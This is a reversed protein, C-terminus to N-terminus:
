VDWGRFTAGSDLRPRMEQDEDDGVPVLVRNNVFTGIHPLLEDFWANLDKGLAVGNAIVADAITHPERFVALLAAMEADIVQSFIRGHRRSLTYDGDDFSIRGRMDASLDACPILVVDNKLVFPETINMDHELARRLTDLYRRRRRPPPRARRRLAVARRRRRPARGQGDVDGLGPAARDLYALEPPQAM